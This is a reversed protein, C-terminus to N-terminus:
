ALAMPGTAVPGITANAPVQASLMRKPAHHTKSGTRGIGMTRLEFRQKLV